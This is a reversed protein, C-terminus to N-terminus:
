SPIMAVALWVLAGMLSAGGFFAAYVVLGFLIRLQCSPNSRQQVYRLLRLWHQAIQLLQAEIEHENQNEALEPAERARAECNSL